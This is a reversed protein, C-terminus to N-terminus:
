VCVLNMDPSKSQPCSPAFTVIIVKAFIYLYLSSYKNNILLFVASFRHSNVLNGYRSM